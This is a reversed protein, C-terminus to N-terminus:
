KNASSNLLKTKRMEKIFPDYRNRVENEAEIFKYHYIIFGLIFCVIAYATIMLIASSVDGGIIRELGLLLILYKLYNLISFGKDFYAKVLFFKYGRYCKKTTDKKKGAEKMM